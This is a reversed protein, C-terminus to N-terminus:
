RPRGAPEAPDAPPPQLALHWWGVDHWSGHKFGANPFRGIHGFGLKEHVSVSAPNPLTIGAYASVYGLSRLEEFLARYLATGVGRGRWDTAIYVSVDVSWRYAARDAHRSAYAYGIVAGDGVAALWPFHTTVARIREGFEVVTPAVLEFSIVTEEVVPAYIAQM